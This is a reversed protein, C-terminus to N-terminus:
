SIGPVPGLREFFILSSCGATLGATGVIQDVAASRWGSWLTSGGGAHGVMLEDPSIWATEATM